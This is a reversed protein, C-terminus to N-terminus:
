ANFVNFGGIGLVCLIAIIALIWWIIRWPKSQRMAFDYSTYVIIGTMLISALWQLLGPVRGFSFSWGWADFAAELGVFIYAIAVFIIAIFAIFGITGTRGTKAM